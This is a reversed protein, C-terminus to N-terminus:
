VTNGYYALSELPSLFRVVVDSHRIPKKCYHLLEFVGARDYLHVAEFVSNAEILEGCCGIRFDGRAMVLCKEGNM